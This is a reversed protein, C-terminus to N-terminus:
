ESFHRCRKLRLAYPTLSLSISNLMVNECQIEMNTHHIHSPYFICSLSLQGARAPYFPYVYNYFSDLRPKIM